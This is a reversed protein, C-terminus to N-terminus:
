QWPNFMFLGFRKHVSLYVEAEITYLGFLNFSSRKGKLNSVFRVPRAFGSQTIKILGNIAMNVEIGVVHLLFHKNMFNFIVPNSCSVM